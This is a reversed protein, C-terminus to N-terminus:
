VWNLRIFDSEDEWSDYLTQGITDDVSIVFNGYVYLDWYTPNNPDTFPQGDLLTGLREYYYDDNNIFAKEEGTFDIPRDVLVISDSSIRHLKIGFSGVIHFTSWVVDEGQVTWELRAWMEDVQDGADNEYILFSTSTIRKGDMMFGGSVQGTSEPLIAPLVAMGLIIVIVSLLLIKRKNLKIMKIM